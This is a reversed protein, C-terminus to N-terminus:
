KTNARISNRPCTNNPKIMPRCYTTPSKRNGSIGKLTARMTWVLRSITQSSNPKM